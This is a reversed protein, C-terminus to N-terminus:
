IQSAERMKMNTKARGLRCQLGVVTKGVNGSVSDNATGSRVFAMRQELFTM